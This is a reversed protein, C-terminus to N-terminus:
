YKKPRSMWLASFTGTPIIWVDQPPVGASAHVVSSPNFLSGASSGYTFRKVFVWSLRGARFSFYLVCVRGLYSASRFAHFSAGAFAFGVLVAGRLGSAGSWSGCTGVTKFLAIIAGITGNASRPAM